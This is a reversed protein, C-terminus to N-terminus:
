ERGLFAPVQDLPSDSSSSSSFIFIVVLDLITPNHRSTLFVVVVVVVFLFYLGRTSALSTSTRHSLISISRNFAAIAVTLVDVSAVL